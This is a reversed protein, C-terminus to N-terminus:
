EPISKPLGVTCFMEGGDEVFIILMQVPNIKAIRITIQTIELSVNCRAVEFLM